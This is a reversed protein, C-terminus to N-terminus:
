EGKFADEYDERYRQSKLKRDMERVKRAQKHIERTEDGRTLRVMHKVERSVFARTAERASLKRTRPSYQPSLPPLSQILSQAARTPSM